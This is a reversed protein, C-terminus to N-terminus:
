KTAPEFPKCVAAPQDKTINCIAFVYDGALADLSSGITTAPDVLQGAVYSMTQKSMAGSVTTSVPSGSQGYKGGFDIFPFSGGGITDFLQNEFTTLKQLPAESVTEIEKPVFKLYKSTYSSNYFTFTPTSPYVDTSSSAIQGLHSFTGFKSLAMVMSWRTAACYPCFEGGVYLMEPLGGSTLPVGLKLKAPFKGFGTPAKTAAKFATELTSLPVSTVQSVLSPDAVVHTEKTASAPKKSGGSVAKDVVLGVVALLVVIVAAIAVARQQQRKRRARQQRANLPRGQPAPRGKPSAPM